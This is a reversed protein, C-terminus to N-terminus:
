AGARILDAAKEALMITPGNTNAAPVTPMVSADAVRLGAVGHVRLTPDVVADADRGMRCTGVPHYMLFGRQRLFAEWGADDTVEPGPNIPGECISALPETAFVRQVIRGGAVLRAVDDRSGLLEHEIVPPAAPDASRLRIRGRTEPRCVNIAVGVRNTRAIRIQDSEFEYGFPAFHLQLDPRALSPDTKFFGVVHAIPSSAPGRQLTAYQLAALAYRWRSNAIRNLTPVRMEFDVIIGPHEQLNAGVGPADHLCAIGLRELEARPGIGSLMLLKPSAMAGACVIVERAARLEAAVGNREIAVGTARGGEIRIRRALAGTIVTLNSRRAAPGLYARATSHRMGGRQNTQMRGVGEQEAGNVDDNRKLGANACAELLLPNLPHDIRLDNVHLPGSRGHWEDRFRGNTECKIFYPLCDRYSWGDAGRRAWEDYDDRHGRLYVMGNISSGGGLVKGAPWVDVRGGRSADPEAMYCWDWRPNGMLRTSLGPVLVQPRFASGGAEVLAVRCGPDESLRSAIVCGASGGGVVIYDFRDDSM